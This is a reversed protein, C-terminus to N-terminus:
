KVDKYITNMHKLQESTISELQKKTPLPDIFNFFKAYYYSAKRWWEARGWNKEEIRKDMEEASKWKREKHFQKISYILMGIGSLYLTEGCDEKNKIWMEIKRRRSLIDGNYNSTYNYVLHFRFRGIKFLDKNEDKKYIEVRAKREFSGFPGDNDDIFEIKERFTKKYIEGYYNWCCKGYTNCEKNPCEYKDKMAPIEVGSVHEDLTELRAQGTIILETKCSPCYMKENKENTNM